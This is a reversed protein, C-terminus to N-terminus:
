DDDRNEERALVVAPVQPGVLTPPGGEMSIWSRPDEAALEAAEAPHEYRGYYWPRGALEQVPGADSISAIPSFGGEYGQVLVLTDPPLKQLQAILEDATMPDAM